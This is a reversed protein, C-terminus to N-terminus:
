EAALELLLIAGALLGSFLLIYAGLLFMIAAVLIVKKLPSPWTYM